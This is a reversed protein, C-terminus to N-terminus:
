YLRGDDHMEHLQVKLQRLLPILPYQIDGLFNVTIKKQGLPNIEVICLIPVDTEGGYVDEFVATAHYKQRYYVGGEEPEVDKIEILKM